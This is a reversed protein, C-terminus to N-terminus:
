HHSLYEDCSKHFELSLIVCHGRSSCAEGSSANLLYMNYAILKVIEQKESQGFFPHISIM